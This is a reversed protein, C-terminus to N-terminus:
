EFFSIVDAIVDLVPRIFDLPSFFSEVVNVLTDLKGQFSSWVGELDLQLCAWDGDINETSTYFAPGWNKNILKHTPVKTHLPSRRDSFQTVLELLESDAPQQRPPLTSSAKVLKVWNLTSPKPHLINGLCFAM